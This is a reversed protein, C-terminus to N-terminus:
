GYRPSVFSFCPPVNLKLFLLVVKELIEPGLGKMYHITLMSTGLAALFMKMMVMSTFNMQGRIILVEHVGARQMAGGFAMGVMIPTWAPGLPNEIGQVNGM